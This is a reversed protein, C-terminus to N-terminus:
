RDAMLQVMLPKAPLSLQSIIQKLIECKTCGLAASSKLVAVLPQRFTRGVTVM